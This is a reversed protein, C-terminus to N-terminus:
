MMFSKKKFFLSRYVHKETCKTLYKLADKKYIRGLSQKQLIDEQKERWGWGYFTVMSKTKQKKSWINESCVSRKESLGLCSAIAM